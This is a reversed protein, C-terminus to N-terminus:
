KYGRAVGVVVGVVDECEVTSEIAGKGIKKMADAGWKVLATKGKVQAMVTQGDKAPIDTRVVIVDGAVIKSDNFSNDAVDIFLNAGEIPIIQELVAMEANEAAKLQNKEVVGGKRIVTTDKPNVLQISRSLHPQRLILGKKILARLHGVVGNPSNIDVADGIERVTPGYGKTKITRKIFELVDRQRATLARVTGKKAM